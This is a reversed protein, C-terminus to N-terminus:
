RARTNPEIQAQCLATQAQLKLAFAKERGRSYGIAGCVLALVAAFTLAQDQRSLSLTVGAGILAGLLAGTVTYSAILTKAQNYLRTAFEVLVSSDYDIKM